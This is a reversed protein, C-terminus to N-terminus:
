EPIKKLLQRAQEVVPIVIQAETGDEVHKFSFEAQEGFYGNLRNRINALGVGTGTKNKQDLESGEEFGPGNDWVTIWLKTGDTVSSIKIEGNRKVRSIGHKVANEVLTQVIMSPILFSGTEVEMSIEASLRDGFRAEEVELYASIFDLEEELRVWERDSYYLTYRFIESLLEVTKEARAPDTKTFSAIANLANFLFHPNIQARLAKLRSKSADLLLEQERKERVRRDDQLRILKLYYGAIGLLGRLLIKDKEYYPVGSPRADMNLRLVENEELRNEIVLDLGDVDINEASDPVVTVYARSNFVEGLLLAAKKLVEDQRTEFNLVEMFRRMASEASIKRGLWFRDLFLDILKYIWPALLFFPLWVLAAVRFFIHENSIVKSYHGYVLFYLMVFILSLYFFTARKVFLDFFTSKQEYYINLFLFILPLFRVLPSSMLQNNGFEVVCQYLLFSFLLAVIFRIHLGLFFPGEQRWGWFPQKSGILGILYNFIFLICFLILLLSVISTDTLEIGVLYGGAIPPLGRFWRSAMYLSCLFGGFSGAILIYYFYKFRRSRKFSLEPASYFYFQDLLPFLFAAPLILVQAALYFYDYFGSFQGPIASEQLAIASETELPIEIVLNILFWIIAVFIFTSRVAWSQTRSENRRRVVDFFLYSFCFLGFAFTQVPGMMVLHSFILIAWLTILHSGIRQRFTM